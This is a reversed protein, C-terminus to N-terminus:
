SSRDKKATLSYFILWVVVIIALCILLTHLLGMRTVLPCNDEDSGDDCDDVGDCRSTHLICRKTGNTCPWRYPDETWPFSTYCKGQCLSFEMDSGDECLPQNKASCALKTNFCGGHDCDYHVLDSSDSCMGNCAVSDEDSGDACDYM